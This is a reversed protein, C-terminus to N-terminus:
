FKFIIRDDKNTEDPQEHVIQILMLTVQEILKIPSISTFSLHNINDSSGIALLIFVINILM